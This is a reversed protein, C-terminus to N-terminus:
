KKAKRGGKKPNYKKKIPVGSDIVSDKEEESLYEEMAEVDSEEVDGEGYIESLVTLSSVEQRPKKMEECEEKSIEIYGRNYLHERSIEHECVVLGNDTLLREYYSSEDMGTPGIFYGDKDYHAYNGSKFYFSM